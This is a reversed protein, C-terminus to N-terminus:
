LMKKFDAPTYNVSKLVKGTTSNYVVYGDGISAKRYSPSLPAQAPNNRDYEERTSKYM